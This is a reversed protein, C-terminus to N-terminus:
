VQETYVIVRKDYTKEDEIWRGTCTMLNLGKEAQDYPSLVENMDISDKSVISVAKVKYNMRTGDGTEVSLEDDTKLTELYAFLGQRTSGSAHGDIFAAGTQGPKASGTYWGADYINTPAIISNEATLGVPKIRSAIGLKPIYLGRPQDAAVSYTDLASLQAENQTSDGKAVDTGSMASQVPQSNETSLKTVRSDLTLQEYLFYSITLLLIAGIGVLFIHRQIWKM